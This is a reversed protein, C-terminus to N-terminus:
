APVFEWQYQIMNQDSRVSTLRGEEFYVCQNNLQWVRLFSCETSSQGDIAFWNQEDDIFTM